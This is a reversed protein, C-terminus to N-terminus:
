RSRARIKDVKEFLETVRILISTGAVSLEAGAVRELGAATSTYAVRAQPDIVWVNQVGFGLYEIAMKTVRRMSDEPSMIEIVILPPVTLIDDIRSGIRLACVDPVFFRRPDIQVRQATLGFVSWAEMNNTFLTALLTQLLAHEFEGLNREVVLGDDYECDPEYVTSLYEEVSIFRDHQESISQTAM